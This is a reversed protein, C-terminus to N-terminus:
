QFIEDGYKREVFNINSYFGYQKNERRGVYNGPCFHFLTFTIKIFYCFEKFTADGSLLDKFM